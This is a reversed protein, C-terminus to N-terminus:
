DAKSSKLFAYAALLTSIPVALILISSGVLSRVLEEAIFESNLLLWLPQSKQLTLLLFLPLAAGAYVLILTNILSTIHERGISLGKKYLTKITLNPDLKHLEEVAATQATTVDDLIGLVSIIIGALLVGQLNIAGLFGTQLLFADSQGLGFLGTVDVFLWTVFGAIALSILTSLAAIKIRKTFGHSIFMSVMVIAGSGVLAVALANKGLLIQPAIFLLLIAGTIGLGVLATVGRLKGILIALLLFVGVVIYIGPMRYRDIIVYQEGAFGVGEPLLGLVVRDGVVYKVSGAKDLIQTNDIVTSQSQKNSDKFDVKLQQTISQNQQAEDIQEFKVESVRGKFYGAFSNEDEAAAGQQFAADNQAPIQVVYIAGLLIATAFVILVHSLSIKNIM